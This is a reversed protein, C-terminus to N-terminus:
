KGLFMVKERFVSKRSNSIELIYFGSKLGLVELDISSNTLPIKISHQSISNFFQVFLNPLQSSVGDVYLVDKVPNPYVSIVASGDEESAVGVIPFHTTDFRIFLVDSNFGSLNLSGVLAFKGPKFEHFERLLGPWSKEWLLTGERTFKRFYSQCNGTLNTEYSLLVFASDLTEACKFYSGGCNNPFTKRWETEGSFDTKILETSDSYGSLLFGGDTTADMGYGYNNTADGYTKTWLTDGTEDTRLLYFDVSGAGRSNTWGFLVFGNDALQKVVFLEENSSGSFVKSWQLNGIQDHKTLFGDYVPSSCLNTSFFGTVAFGNDATQIFDSGVNNCLPFFIPKINLVNGQLDATSLHITDAAFGIQEKGLFHLVGPLFNRVLGNPTVQISTWFTDGLLNISLQYGANDGSCFSTASIFFGTSDIATLSFGEETCNPNGYTKQVVVQGECKEKLLFLLSVAFLTTSFITRFIGSKLM